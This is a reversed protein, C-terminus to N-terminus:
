NSTRDPRSPLSAASAAKQGALRAAQRAAILGASDQRLAEFEADSRAEIGDCVRLLRTFALSALTFGAVLESLSAPSTLDRSSADLRRLLARLLAIEPDSGAPYDPLNVPDFPRAYFRHKRASRSRRSCAAPRRKSPIPM